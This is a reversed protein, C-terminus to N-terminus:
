SSCESKKKITDGGSLLIEWKDYEDSNFGYLELLHAIMKYQFTYALVSDVIPVIMTLLSSGAPLLSCVTVSNNAKKKITEIM